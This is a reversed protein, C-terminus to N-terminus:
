LVDAVSGRADKVRVMGSMLLPLLEDRTQALLDSELVALRTMNLLPALESSLAQWQEQHMDPVQVHDFTSMTITDFVSGHALAKAQAAADEIAFVLCGAPIRDPVFGYCSQNVACPMGLRAVRGVTGRATLIASGEPLAQLRKASSAKDSIGELTRIIVGHSAGTVDKASIWPITGDWLSVDSRDPTGGLFPELVTSMPVAALNAVARHYQADAMARSARAVRDNAAIKDDIAGLVEAIARQEDLAPLEVVLSEASRVNFHQQVAGVLHGAIHTDTIWNLYYSFWYADLSPGPRTIVLDSCNAEGLWEPVVATQGPKGTRVTVVDGSRLASKRLKAHFSPVVYKIDALDIRHPRVNLSRLFPIGSDVYESAMPGVHGVTVEAVEGLKAEVRESGSSRDPGPEAARDSAHFGAVPQGVGSTM